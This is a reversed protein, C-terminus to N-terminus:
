LSVKDNFLFNQQSLRQWENVIRCFLEATKTADYAARHAQNPNFHIGATACANALVTEGCALAALTVTDFCSFLHFPNRKIKARNAAANLFSLDFTANHGVLIAKQCYLSNKADRIEQFVATLAEKESVANREPDFPDIGTFALSAAELNAGAFPEINKQLLKGPILNGNDDMDIIVAAIELLADTQPNFGGTEVDIVVPLYGRFRTALNSEFLPFKNM